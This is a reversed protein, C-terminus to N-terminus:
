FEHKGIENCYLFIAIKTTTRNLPYIIRFAYLLTKGQTASLLISAKGFKHLNSIQM